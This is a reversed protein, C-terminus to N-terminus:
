EVLPEESSSPVQPQDDITPPMTQESTDEQRPTAPRVTSNRITSSRIDKIEETPQDLREIASLASEVNIEEDIKTDISNNELKVLKKPQEKKPQVYNAMGESKYYLTFGSYIINPNKIMPKNNEWISKWKKPTKYVSNSITGLTEGSKIMYPNGEPNWVFPTEPAYYKLAINSQLASNRPLKAGNLKKLDKWRSIDGYLKFAIQMLTEGKQVKYTKIDNTLASDSSNSSIKADALDTKIQPEQEEVKIPTAKSKAKAKAITRDNPKDAVKPKEEPAPSESIQSEAPSNGAFENKIAELDDKKADSNEIATINSPGDTKNESAANDSNATQTSFLDDNPGTSSDATKNESSETGTEPTKFKEILGCSSLLLSCFILGLINKRKLLLRRNIHVICGLLIISLM